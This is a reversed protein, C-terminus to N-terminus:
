LRMRREHLWNYDVMASEVLWGVRKGLIDGFEVKWNEKEQELDLGTVDQLKEMLVGTSMMLTDKMRADPKRMNELREVNWEFRVVDPELGVAAAYRRVLGANSLDSADLIIPYTICRDCTQCPYSDSAVLFKYLAVHWHYTAEWRMSGEGSNSLIAEVGENDIATRMLSPFTHAPHRILFSPRIKHLLFPTPISTPNESAGENNNLL